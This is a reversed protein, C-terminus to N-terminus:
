GTMQQHFSNVTQISMIFLRSKIEFSIVAGLLNSRPKKTFLISNIKTTLKGTKIANVHFNAFNFCTSNTGLTFSFMMLKFKVSQWLIKFYYMLLSTEKETYKERSNKKVIKLKGSCGKSVCSLMNYKVFGM